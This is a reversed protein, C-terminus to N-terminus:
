LYRTRQVIGYIFISSVSHPPYRSPPTMEDVGAYPGYLDKWTVGCRRTKPSPADWKIKHTLVAILLLVPTSM